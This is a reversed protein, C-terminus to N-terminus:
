SLKQIGKTTDSSNQQSPGQVLTEISETFQRQRISDDGSDTDVYVAFCEREIGPYYSWFTRYDM